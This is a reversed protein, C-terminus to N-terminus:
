SRSIGLVNGIDRLAALKGDFQARVLDNGRGSGTDGVQLFRTLSFWTEDALVRFVEEGQDIGWSFRQRAEVWTRLSGTATALQTMIHGLIDLGRGETANRALLGQLREVEQQAKEVIREFTTETETILPQVTM